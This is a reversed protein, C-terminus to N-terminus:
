YSDTVRRRLRVASVGSGAALASTAANEFHSETAAAVDWASASLLEAANAADVDVISMLQAQRLERAMRSLPATTGGPLVDARDFAAASPAESRTPSPRGSRRRRLAALMRLENNAVAAVPVVASASYAAAGSSAATASIRHGPGLARRRASSTSLVAVRAASAAAAAATAGGGGHPSTSLRNGRGVFAQAVIGLALPAGAGDPAWKRRRRRQKPAGEAAAVAAVAAAAGASSDDITSPSRIADLPPAFDVELDVDGCLSVVSDEEGAKATAESTAGGPDRAARERRRTAQEAASATSVALVDVCFREGEHEVTITEGRSLMTYKGAFCTEFFLRPGVASAIDLLAARHPRLQVFKGQPIAKAIVFSALGGEELGLNNLMWWPLFAHGEDAAFESVGCYQPGYGCTETTKTVVIRFMIPFPLQLAYVLTLISPPLVGKDSAEWESKGCCVLSHVRLTFVVM